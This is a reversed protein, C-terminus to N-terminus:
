PLIAIILPSNESNNILAQVEAPPYELQNLRCGTLIGILFELLLRILKQRQQKEMSLKKM